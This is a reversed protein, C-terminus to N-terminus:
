IHATSMEVLVSTGKGDVSHVDVKGKLFEVRNQINSWGMGKSKELISSDFGKGDDEVTLTLQNDTKALQVVALSAAAHKIINNILEQVIRYIAIATTQEISIEKIGISQYNIKLAGSQNIDNCYDNLATDLGFKVLTEPMMNHAVRRMEKISSDLMDMSREFTLTNEPTMILNGKMANMSYKIGSLMGGLSDHLDKALRTREQEEGKLVAETATLQQLAELEAIRHRQLKQQQNYNRLALLSIFLIAIAAGALLYNIINKKDITVQQSLIEVQQQKAQYKTELENLNRLNNRQLLTDNVAVFQKLYFHSKHIDGTLEYAKVLDQLSYHLIQLLHNSDALQTAQQLYNIANPYDQKLLYTHGIKQLVFAVDYHIEIERFYKLASFLHVLASDAKDEKELYYWGTLEHFKGMGFNSKQALALAMGQHCFLLVSDVKGASLNAEALVILSRMKFVKNGSQHAIASVANAYQLAKDYNDLFIYIVALNYYCSIAKDYNDNAEFISVAKLYLTAASDYFQQQQYIGAYIAYLQAQLTKGIKSDKTKIISYAKDALLKASDLKMKYFLFYAQMSLAVVAGEKYEIKESLYLAEKSVLWAKSPESGALQEALENLRNTKATDDPLAAISAPVINKQQAELVFCGSMLFLLIHFRIMMFLYFSCYSFFGLCAYRYEGKKM